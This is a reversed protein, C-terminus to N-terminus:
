EKQLITSVSLESGPLVTLERKWQAFGAMSFLVVHTGTSVVIESPTNGVYRGDLMIEAGSPTSSFNCRVKEGKEAPVASAAPVAPAAPPSSVAPVPAQSQSVAGAGAQPAAGAAMLEYFQKREKGKANRYLVTIGRKEKRADFTGGVPLPACKSWRSDVTCSISFSKGDADQVLMINQVSPNRSGNCYASYNQMDCDQPVPTGGNLSHFEASLVKIRLPYAQAAADGFMTNILFLLPLLGCLRILSKRCATGM